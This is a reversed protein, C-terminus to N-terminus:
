KIGIPTCGTAYHVRLFSLIGVIAVLLNKIATTIIVVHKPRWPGDEPSASVHLSVTIICLFKYLASGYPVSFIKWM